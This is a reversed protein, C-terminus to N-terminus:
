ARSDVVRGLKSLSTRAPSTTEFLEAPPAGPRGTTYERPVAVSDSYPDRNSM